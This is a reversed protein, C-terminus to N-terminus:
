RTEGLVAKVGATVKREEGDLQDYLRQQRLDFSRRPKQGPANRQGGNHFCWGAAGGQIAGRLDELFDGAEPDFKEYGRRFPEQYHIPAVIGLEKLRALGRRTAEETELHSGRHRPRHNCAFDLRVTKLYRELEGVFEGDPGSHSATILRKPDLEKARDRSAKLEEMSVFRSDGVNRENALDLYWNRWPRLREVLTEVARRHETPTLLRPPGNKGKERALTVDVVMGREDCKRILEQLRGLFPERPSGDGDVASIDNEFAAWNAWVRIWNFGDRRMDDLDKEAFGEAAGLAGYYSIGLLFTPKGDITFRDGKVGLEAASAGVAWLAMIASALLPLHLARM